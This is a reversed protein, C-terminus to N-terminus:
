CKKVFGRSIEVQFEDFHKKIEKHAEETTMGDFCYDNSLSRWPCLKGYERYTKECNWCRAKLIKDETMKM